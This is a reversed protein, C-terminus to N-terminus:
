SNSALNDQTKRKRRGEPSWTLSVKANNIDELRLVHGLWRWHREKIMDSVPMMRANKYDKRTM